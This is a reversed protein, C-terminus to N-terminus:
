NKWDLYLDALERLEEQGREWADRIGVLKFGAASATRAAYLADEFVVTREVETGLFRRATQYILDSEKGAGVQRCCFYREFYRDLGTREMAHKGMWEDTASAICMRVGGASLEELIERIGPRELVQERYFRVVLDFMEGVVKETDDQIGYVKKLKGVGARMGDDWTVEKLRSDPAIGKERIYLEALNRWVGMSDILTGDMDFIAGEIEMGRWNM